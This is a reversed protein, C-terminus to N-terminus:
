SAGAPQESSPASLASKAATRWHSLLVAATGFAVYNVPLARLYGSDPIPVPRGAGGAGGTVWAILMAMLVVMPVTGVAWRPSAVPFRSQAIIEAVYFGAGVAFCAQGHTIVRDDGGISFLRILVLSAVFLTAMHLKIQKREDASQPIDDKKAMGLWSVVLRSVGCCAIMLVVWFMSEAILRPYLSSRGSFEILLQEMSGGRFSAITLGVGIAFGGVDRHARGAVAAAVASMVLALLGIQVMMAIPRGQTMLSVAAQPEWPKLATWGVTVFVATTVGWAAHFLLRHTAAPPQQNSAVQAVTM